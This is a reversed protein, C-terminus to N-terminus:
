DELGAAKRAAVIFDQWGLSVFRGDPLRVMMSGNPNSSLEYKEEGDMAEGVHTRLLLVDRPIVTMKVAVSASTEEAM